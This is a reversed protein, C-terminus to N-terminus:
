RDLNLQMYVVGPLPNPSYAATDRFGLARYLAQAVVMSPLTDLVLRQYGSARAREVLAV